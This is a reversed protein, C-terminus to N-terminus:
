VAGILLGGVIWRPDGIGLEILTAVIAILMGLASIANGRRATKVKTLGKLGFVFLAASVLYLIQIYNHEM